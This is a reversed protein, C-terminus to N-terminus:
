AAGPADDAENLSVRHALVWADLDRISYFIRRGIAFYPVKLRPYCRDIKLTAPKLGLYAAARDTNVREADFNLRDPRGCEDATTARTKRNSRSAM